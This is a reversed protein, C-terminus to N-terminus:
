LIDLVCMARATLFHGESAWLRKRIECGAPHRLLQNSTNQILWRTNSPFITQLTPKHLSWPLLLLGVYCLSMPPVVNADSAYGKIKLKPITPSHTQLIKTHIADNGQPCSVREALRIGSYDIKHTHTNQNLHQRPTQLLTTRKQNSESQADQWQLYSLKTKIRLVYTTWVVLTDYKHTRNITPLM